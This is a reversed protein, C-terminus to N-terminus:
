SAIIRYRKRARQEEYGGGHVTGNSYHLISDNYGPHVAGADEHQQDYPQVHVGEAYVQSCVGVISKPAWLCDRM